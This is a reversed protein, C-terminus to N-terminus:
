SLTSYPSFILFSSLASRRWRAPSASSITLREPYPLRRGACSLPPWRWRTASARAITL